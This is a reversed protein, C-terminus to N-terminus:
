FDNSPPLYLKSPVFRVGREDEIRMMLDMSELQQIEPIISTFTRAELRDLTANKVKSSQISMGTLSDAVKKAEASQQSMQQTIALLVARYFDAVTAKPIGGLDITRVSKRFSASVGSKENTVKGYFLASVRM